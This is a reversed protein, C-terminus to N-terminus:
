NRDPHDRLIDAKRVDIAVVGGGSTPAFLKVVVCRDDTSGNPPIPQHFDGANYIQVANGIVNGYRDHVPITPCTLGANDGPFPLVARLPGTIVDRIYVRGIRTFHQTDIIDVTHDGTGVFALQTDPHYSGGPNDITAADAHLPDLAAGAGFSANPIPTQGELHLTKPSVFYAYSLGRVVALSGDYNLGLGHVEESANRLLDSVLLWSTLATTDQQRAQYTLVRGQPSAGGEGISVWKGDGSAAVYTTDQYTISPINWKASAQCYVDSGMAKLRAAADCIPDADSIKLSTSIIQDPFGPKHDFFQIASITDAVGLSDTVVQQINTLSDIHALAWNDETQSNDNQEVFVKAEPSQWGPSYYAKRATGLDGVDTTKTSYILNGYEDVTVFEPRDSFSPSKAQPLPTVLFVVSGTQGQKRAIDFLHVSPTEFRDDPLYQGSPVDIVDFNAGGSNAVWLSDGSRSFSLGWPESGVGIANDFQDTELDFVDVRNNSINSLYLKRRGPTTDIAADMIQGGDPLQVTAGAVVSRQVNMGVQDVAVRAGSLTGCAYAATDQSNSAGCNGAGDVMWSTIEYVLTDPLSLSDVNFPHFGFTKTLTGTRPPSFTASDTYVVTDGRSPSIGLVTYGVRQVGSGQTNDAGTIEVLVSDQLEMRDPATATEKLRPAITDGVGGAVVTVAVPGDQGLVNLSNRATASVNIAGRASSPIAVVTDFVISDVAPNVAKTITVNFAGTVSVAVQNIGLPDQARMRVTLNLGAQISQGDTIDLLQVGPGGLLVAASDASQNGSSDSAEVVIQVMERTTDGTPQIYRTLTTDVVGAPLQIDKEEFRQVVSDTGLSKSGRHSVGYFRVTSVGVNDTVHAQVFVSDGVPRASLSDGRPSEITVTPAKTDQGAAAGAGGTVSFLNSGGCAAVVLMAAMAAAAGIRAGNMGNRRM